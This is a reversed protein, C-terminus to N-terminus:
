EYYFNFVFCIRPNESEHKTVAHPVDKPHIVLTGEKVDIFFLQEKKYDEVSSGEVGNEILVLKSSNKPVSFYFIAVAGSDNQLDHVHCFGSSGYIMKNAWMREYHIRSKNTYGLDSQYKILSQTIWILLPQFGSLELLHDSSLGSTTLTTSYPSEPVVTNKINYKDFLINVSNKLTENKYLSLDNCEVAIIKIM